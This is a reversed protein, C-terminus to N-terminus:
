EPEVEKITVKMRGASDREIRGEKAKAPPQEVTVKVDPAAIQIAGQPIVASIVPTVNVEPAAIQPAFTIPAPDAAQVTVNPAAVNVIPAPQEPVNVTVHPAPQEPVNIQIAPMQYSAGTRTPPISFAAAQQQDGQGPEQQPQANPDANPDTQENPDQTAGPQNAGPAMESSSSSEILKRPLIEYQVKGFNWQVMPRICYKDFDSILFNVVDQLSCYFAEQPVGRGGDGLAGSNSEVLEKVFGMGKGIKDDTRDCWELMQDPSGQFVMPEVEINKNGQADRVLPLFLNGGNKMLDFSQRLKDRLTNAPGNQGTTQDPIGGAGVWVMYGPFAYKRFFLNASDECGGDSWKKVWPAWAGELRSRGFYQNRERQHVGWFFRPAGIYTPKNGYNGNLSHGNTRGNHKTATSEHTTVNVGVIAGKLVQPTCDIPEFGRMIDFEVFPRNPDTTKEDNQKYLIEAPSFGWEIQKLATLVSNLFFRDVQRNIFDTVEANSCEVDFKAHAQITGKLIYLIHNVQEDRLMMQISTYTFPPMRMHSGVNYTNAAAAGSYEPIIPGSLFDDAKYIRNAPSAM